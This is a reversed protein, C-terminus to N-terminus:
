KALPVISDLEEAIQKRVERADIDNQLKLFYLESLGFYRALRISTDVSIKRRDNLIEQIRSAPVYIDKALRYASIDYPEMFEERLIESIKPLEITKSKM